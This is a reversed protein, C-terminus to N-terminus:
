LGPSDPGAPRSTSSVRVVGTEDVFFSRDGQTCVPCSPIARVSWTNTPNQPKDTSM